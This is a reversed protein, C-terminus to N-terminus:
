HTLRQTAANCRHLTVSLADQHPNAQRALAGWGKCGELIGIQTLVPSTQTHSPPKNNAQKVAACRVIRQGLELEPLKGIADRTAEKGFVEM